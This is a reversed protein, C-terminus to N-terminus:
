SDDLWRYFTRLSIGLNKAAVHKDNGCAELEELARQHRKIKKRPVRSGQLPASVQELAFFNEEKNAKLSLDSAVDTLCVSLYQQLVERHPSKATRYYEALDIAHRMALNFEEVAYKMKQVEHFSRGINTYESLNQREQLMIVENVYPNRKSM